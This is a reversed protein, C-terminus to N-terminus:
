SPVPPPALDLPAPEGLRLWVVYDTAPPDAGEARLAAAAQGRHHAGHLLVHELVDGVATDFRDGGLTAYDTPADLAADALPEGGPQLLADWGDVNRRALARCGDADLAPWLAVGATPEGRLRLMWVRDAALAHALPRVAASGAPLAAALRATAWAHYRYRRRLHDARM